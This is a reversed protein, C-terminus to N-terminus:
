ASNNVRLAELLASFATAATETRLIHQGIRLPIAGHHELLRHELETMGGEPGVFVITDGDWSSLEALSAPKGELGGYLLRSHPYQKKLDAIVEILRAPGTIQPLYLRGCQKCAAITMSQYREIASERGLRVSREFQVLAIHDIGLETTKTLMWDFRQGKAVATALILRRTQRSPQQTLTQVEAYVDHKRIQTVTAQALTGQGDFLEISDNLKGRLVSVFHHAEATTLQVRGPTLPNQYFRYLEVGNSRSAM